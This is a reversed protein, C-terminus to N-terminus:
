LAPPTAGAPVLWFRTKNEDLNGKVFTFRSIDQKRIKSIYDRLLKFKRKIAADTTQPPFYEIIYIQASPDRQMESILYDLRAKDIRNPSISFEDIQIAEIKFCYGMLTESFTNPCGELLGRIEVAVTLSELMTLRKVTVTSTGQGYIIKGSNTTWFFELKRGDEIDVQATFNGEENLDLIGSPIIIIIEPCKKSDNSQSFVSFSSACILILILLFYKM